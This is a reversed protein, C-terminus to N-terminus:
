YRVPGAVGVDFPNWKGTLRVRVIDEKASINRCNAGPPCVNFNDLPSFLTTNHFDIHQYEVGIIFAFHPIVGAMYDIGAGWYTGNRGATAVDFSPATVTSVRSDVTTHAWGGEGYFLWNTWAFGGRGGVTDTTQLRVQCVAAPVTVVCFQQTAFHNNIFDSVTADVGLVLFSFQVQAGFIGSLVTDSESSSFPACCNSPVPNTYAWGFSGRSYGAGAGAYFGSWDYVPAAVVPAPPAKVPLNAALVSTTFLAAVIATVWLAVMRKM